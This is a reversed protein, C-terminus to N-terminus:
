ISKAMYNVNINFLWVCPFSKLNIKKWMGARV